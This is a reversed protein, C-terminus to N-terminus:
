EEGHCVGIRFLMKRIEEVSYCIEVEPTNLGLNKANSGVLHRFTNEQMQNRQKVYGIAIMDPFNRYRRFHIVRRNSVKFFPLVNPIFRDLFRKMSVSYSGFLIPSIMIFKESNVINESIDRVQDDIVCEGVHDIWCRFCGQCYQMQSELRHVPQSNVKLEDFLRVLEENNDTDIIVTYKM